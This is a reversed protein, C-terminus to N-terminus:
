IEHKNWTTVWVTYLVIFGTIVSPFSDLHTICRNGNNINWTKNFDYLWSFRSFSRWVKWELIGRLHLCYTMQHTQKAETFWNVSVVFVQPQVSSLNYIMIFHSQISFTYGCLLFRFGWSVCVILDNTMSYISVAQSSPRANKPVRVKFHQISFRKFDLHFTGKLCTQICMIVHLHM